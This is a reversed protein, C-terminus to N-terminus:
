SIAHTIIIVGVILQIKTVTYCIKWTFIEVLLNFKNFAKNKFSPKQFTGLHTFKIALQLNGYLIKYCDSSTTLVVPFM